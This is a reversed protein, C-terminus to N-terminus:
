KWVNFEVRRNKQRGQYNGNDAIPDSEGFGNTDIKGAPVKFKEVIYTKVSRSRRQSLNLNYEDSGVSDTHGIIELKKFGRKQIEVIFNDIEQAYNGKIKDSDTDFLVAVSLRYRDPTKATSHGEEIKEIKPQDDCIPGIAWNIGTYIRWDPNGIANGVKTSGGIHFALNNSIDKKIGALAELSNLSGDADYDVKNVAQAGFLELILKTSSQTFLYSGAISYIFQDKLPIYPQNPIQDGPQRKRYGVNVATAWKEFTKDYALEFNLTPGGGSGAFPNNEILNNNMSLIGAWGGSDDGSFRYKTNLKVETAGKKDYFTVGTNDKLEQSVIFPVNVGFDWNESIGMGLSLDAGLIRDGAKKGSTATGFNRSYSLTNAAYNFFLGFNLICPKLTESSHVTVFDLGNTTPNFNQFDTGCINAQASLSFFVLITSSIAIKLSTISKM